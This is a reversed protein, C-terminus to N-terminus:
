LRAWNATHKSLLLHPCFTHFCCQVLRNMITIERKKFKAGEKAQQDFEAKYSAYQGTWHEVCQQTSSVLMTKFMGDTVDVKADSPSVFEVRAVKFRKSNFKAMAGTNDDLEVIDAGLQTIDAVDSPGLDGAFTLIVVPTGDEVGEIKLVSPKDMVECNRLALTKMPEGDRDTIVHAPGFDSFLSATVGNTIAM